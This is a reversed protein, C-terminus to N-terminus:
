MIKSTIFVMRALKLLTRNIAITIINKGRYSLIMQTCNCSNNVIYDTNKGVVPDSANPTLAATFACSFPLHVHM